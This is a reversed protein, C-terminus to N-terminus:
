TSPGEDPDAVLDAFDAENREAQVVYLWGLAVLWPYVLGGLLLWPVPIGLVTATGLSPFVELAVPLVGVTLALGLLVTLALRMQSRMLSRVYLEGVRTQSDIEATVSLAKPRSSGSRPSTVRVRRGAPSGPETSPETARPTPDTTV